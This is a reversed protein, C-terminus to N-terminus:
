PKPRRLRDTPETVSTPSELVGQVEGAVASCVADLLDVAARQLFLEGVEEFGVLGVRVTEASQAGGIATLMRLPLMHDREGARVVVQAAEADCSTAGCITLSVDAPGAQSAPTVVVRAEDRTATALNAVREAVSRAVEGTWGISISAHALADAARAPACRLAVPARPDKDQWVHQLNLVARVTDTGVIGDDHQATNRQFERVARETFAGFIADPEGCAFGLANLASQLLRVDRGHLHPSRLYLMRDGLVFTEDVLASWTIPGVVGDEPLGRTHQFDKVAAMTSGLYVGDVGSPGLEYGLSLLRRQVDAVADGRDAPM